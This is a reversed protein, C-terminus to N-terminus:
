LWEHGSARNARLVFIEHAMDVVMADEFGVSSAGAGGTNKTMLHAKVQVFAKREHGGFLNM